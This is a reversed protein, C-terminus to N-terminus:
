LGALQLFYGMYGLVWAIGSNAQFFFVSVATLTRTRHKAKFCDKFSGAKAQAAADEALTTQIGRLRTEVDVDSYLKRISKRAEDLKQRSVLRMPSEPCFWLLGLGVGAFGWQVAYLIRYSMNSPIASTERLVGYGLLQGVVQGWNVAAVMAGRLNPPAVESCYMPAVTLFVGLPIGTLFKGATFLPLSGPSYWQMFVGATTLMYASGICAKQGIHNQALGTAIGGLVIGFLGVATFGTQWAASVVYQGEWPYGYDERFKPISLVIAAAMGDYGYMICTFIMYFCWALAVPYDKFTQILSLKEDVQFHSQEHSSKETDLASEVAYASPRDEKEM